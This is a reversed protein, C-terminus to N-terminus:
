RNGLVLQVLEHMVRPLASQSDPGLHRPGSTVQRSFSGEFSTGGVEGRGSM